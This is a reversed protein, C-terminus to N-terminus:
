QTGDMNNSADTPNKQLIFVTGLDRSMWREYTMSDIKSFGQVEGFTVLYDDRQVWWWSVGNKRQYAPDYVHWGNFEFGGDVHEPLIGQALLQNLASWRTRNWAFYDHTGIVSFVAFIILPLVILRRLRVLETVNDYEHVVSLLLIVFPILFTLYRDYFGALILLAFYFACLALIFVIKAEGQHNKAHFKRLMVLITAMVAQLVTIAGLAAIVTLVIWTWAPAMPLNPLKMLYVDRLTPPGLGLNYLINRSLPMISNDRLLLGSGIAFASIFTTWLFQQNRWVRDRLIRYGALMTWPVLFLGLYMFVVLGQDLFDLIVDPSGRLLGKAVNKVRPNEVGAFGFNPAVFFQYVMLVAIALMGPWAARWLIRWRIGSRYIEACGWALPILVGVQRILTAFIALGLGTWLELRKRTNWYRLFFIVSFVSVTYFPVDTMFTASLEFYIPNFAVTAAGLLATVQSLKWERFLLYTGAIGAAGMVLTSVRLAIFSFGFPVSFLAGWLVHGILTMAAWGPPLALHGQEVLSYVGRSYCWDDNTPFEGLPWALVIMGLWLAILGTLTWLARKRSTLNLATMDRPQHSRAERFSFVM